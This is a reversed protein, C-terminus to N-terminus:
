TKKNNALKKILLYAGGVIAAGAAVYLVRKGDAKKVIGSLKDFNEKASKAFTEKSSALIEESYGLKVLSQCQRDWNSKVFTDLGGAISTKAMSAGLGGGVFYHAGAGLVAGSALAVTTGVPTISKEVSNVTMIIKREV